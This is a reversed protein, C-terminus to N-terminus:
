ISTSSFKIYSCTSAVMKNEEDCSEITKLYYIVSSFSKIFYILVHLLKNFFLVIATIFQTKLVLKETSINNINKWSNNIVILSISALTNMEKFRHPINGDFRSPYHTRSQYYTQWPQENESLKM